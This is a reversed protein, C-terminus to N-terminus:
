PSDGKRAFTFFGDTVAARIKDIAAANDDRQDEVTAIREGTAVLITELRKRRRADKGPVPLSRV